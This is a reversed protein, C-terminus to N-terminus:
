VLSRLPFPTVELKGNVNEIFDDLTVISQHYKGKADRCNATLKSVGGEQVLLIDKSSKEFDTSDKVLKGNDNGICFSLNASSEAFTGNAQRCMAVLSYEGKANINLEIERCSKTFGPYYTLVGNENGIFGDLCITSPNRTGKKGRANGHLYTKNDKTEIRIASTSYAFNGYGQLLKGDDNHICWDLDIFSKQPKGERDKCIAHLISKELRIDSSSSSFNQPNM